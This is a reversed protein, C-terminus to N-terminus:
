GAVLLGSETVFSEQDSLRFPVGTREQSVLLSRNSGFDDNGLILLVRLSDPDVKEQFLSFLENKLFTRQLAPTRRADDKPTLDGDFLVREIGTALAHAIVAEFQGLNGHLDACFLLRSEPPGPSCLGDPNPRTHASIDGSEVAPRPSRTVYARSEGACAVTTLCISSRSRCHSSASPIV